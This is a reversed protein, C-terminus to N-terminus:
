CEFPSRKGNSAKALVGKAARLLLDRKFSLTEAEVVTLRLILLILTLSLDDFM